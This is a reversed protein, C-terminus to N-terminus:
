RDQRRIDNAVTAQHTSILDASQPLQHSVTPLQYVRGDGGTASADDLRGSVADECLKRASHFRDSAGDGNLPPEHGAVLGDRPSGAQM